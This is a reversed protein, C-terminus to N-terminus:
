ARKIEIAEIRKQLGVTGLESGNSAWPSWGIDQIHVRYKIDGTLSIAELRLSKGTTGIVTDKTIVGYDVWGINEIHARAKIEFPVDIKIAELRKAVGTTGVIGVSWDEWGVDQIHGKVKIENKHWDKLRFAGLIGDYPNLNQSVYFPHRYDNQQLCIFKNGEKKRFMGIHSYPAFSSNGYVVWDGDLLEDINTIEYFYNLIGNNKRQNWLDKAYGTESCLVEAGNYMKGLFWNFYQVCQGGGLSKDITEVYFENPNNFVM